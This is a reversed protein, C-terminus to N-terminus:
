TDCGPRWINLNLCEEESQPPPPFNNMYPPPQPAVPKYESADLVGSWPKKPKPVNLRLEGIPSEAYPIGKFIKLDDVEYGEIKGTNTEVVIVM